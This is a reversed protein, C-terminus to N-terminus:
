IFRSKQDVYHESLYFLNDGKFERKKKEENLESLCDVYM